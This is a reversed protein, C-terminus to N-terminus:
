GAAVQDPDLVGVLRALDLPRQILERPREIVESQYGVLFLAAAVVPRVALRLPRRDVHAVGAFQEPLVPGVQAERCGIFEGVIAFPLLRGLNRRAVVAAPRDPSVRGSLLDLRLQGLARWVHDPEARGPDQAPPDLEVFGDSAPKGSLVVVVVDDYELRRHVGVPQGGVVERVGDIIM